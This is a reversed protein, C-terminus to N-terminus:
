RGGDRQVPVCAPYSGRLTTVKGSGQHAKTMAQSDGHEDTVWMVRLLIPKDLSVMAGEILFAQFKMAGFGQLLNALHRFSKSGVIVPLSRM